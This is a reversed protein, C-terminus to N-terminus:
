TAVPEAEGTIRIFCNADVLTAQDADHKVYKKETLKGKVTITKTTGTGSTVKMAYTYTPIIGTTVNRTGRERLYEVIEPSVSLTFRIGIDPSGHGYTRTLGHNTRVEPHTQEFELNRMTTLKDNGTTGPSASSVLLEVRQALILNTEADTDVPVNVM